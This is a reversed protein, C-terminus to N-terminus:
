NAFNNINEITLSLITSEGGVKTYTDRDNTLTSNDLEIKRQTVYNCLATANLFEILFNDQLTKLDSIPNESNNTIILLSFFYKELVVDILFQNDDISGYEIKDLKIYMAPIETDATDDENIKVEETKIFGASTAATKIEAIIEQLTLTTSM